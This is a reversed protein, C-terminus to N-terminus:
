SVNNKKREFKGREKERAIEAPSKYRGGREIKITITTGDERGGEFFVQGDMESGSRRFVFGLQAMARSAEEGKSNLFEVEFTEALDPVIKPQEAGNPTKKM